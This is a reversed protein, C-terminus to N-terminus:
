KLRITYLKHMSSPQMSSTHMSSPHMTSPYMSSHAVILLTLYEGTFYGLCHNCVSYQQADPRNVLTVQAHAVILLTLYEGTFYGLCHNCVSYQQADPRNVLTVQATHNNLRKTCTFKAIVVQSSCNTLSISELSTAWVTTAYQISSLM